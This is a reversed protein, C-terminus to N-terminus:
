DGWVSVWARVGTLEVLVGAEEQCERVAARAFDEGPDIRGGPLWWGSAGFEQVLLFKGTSPTRFM